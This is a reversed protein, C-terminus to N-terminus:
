TRSKHHSSKGIIKMPMAIDEPMVFIFVIDDEAAASLAQIVTDIQFFLLDQEKEQDSAIFFGGLEGSDEFELVFMCSHIIQNCLDKLSV